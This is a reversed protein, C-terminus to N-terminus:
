VTVNGVGVINFSSGNKAGNRLTLTLPMYDVFSVCDVFCHYTAGTDVYARLTGSNIPKIHPLNILHASALFIHYDYESACKNANNVSHATTTTLHAQPLVHPSPAVAGSATTASVAMTQKAALAKAASSGKKLILKTWGSPQQGEWGSGECFCSSQLHGKARCWKCILMAKAQMMFASMTQPMVQDTGMPNLPNSAQICDNKFVTLISDMIVNLDTQLLLLTCTSWLSSLNLMSNCVVIAFRTVDLTSGLDRTIRWHHHIETFHDQLDMGEVWICVKLYDKANTITLATKREWKQVLAMWVQHVMKGDEEVGYQLFPQIRIHDVRNIMYSTVRCDHAPFLIDYFSVSPEPSM